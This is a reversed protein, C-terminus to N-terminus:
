FVNASHNTQFKIQQTLSQGLFVKKLRCLESQIKCRASKMKLM